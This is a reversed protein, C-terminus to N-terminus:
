RVVTMTLADLWLSGIPLLIKGVFEQAPGSTAIGAILGILLGALLHLPRGKVAIM